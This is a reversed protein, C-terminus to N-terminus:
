GKGLLGRWTKEYYEENVRVVGRGTMREVGRESIGIGEVIKSGEVM